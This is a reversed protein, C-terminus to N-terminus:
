KGLAELQWLLFSLEDTQEDITKSLPRGGSHGSTTDYLLLVPRDSGTEAQLLAAMKRAHLPAVRTDSDGTVFLVAPYKMGPKVSQYPSYALLYKFQDADDSSGYEPIWLPALLFEHYRIMDLLPYRCVVARFLDPRQTLAAGVLLGGNSTGTIALRSPKTYNNQILWEAATIFDDFVNQKKGLMGARHWAEGFEGGGRLNPLAFLGGREVWYAATSSFSPTNSVDFGGYGTMLVPNSGDRKLGKSHVLFMPVKTGDKSAYWVQEVEFRSSDFPIKQSAWISQSGSSSDYRFVTFPIHFSTFGYFVEDSSWRGSIGAVSGASPFEVDRLFKGEANFVKLRSSANHLYNVFIKGGAVEVDEIASDTETIVETWNERAPRRLDVSLVRGNPAKWNTQLFLRNGGITGLFRSAMDKAVPVLPGHRALDEVYIETKDGAAGYFVHILLYRGDESLTAGFAIEPGYGKGFLERDSVPDSGMRHYFLRPGETMQRSYYLGTKDPTLSVGYYRAEPLTDALDKGDDVNKLHLSVEDRGGRQIGYAVMKGDTSITELSVTTTHDASMPHPDLLVRDTGKLGDRVYIVFLDQDARRRSFFYRGGREQPAGFTDVKELDNLRKRIPDRSPLPDLQSRTYRTEDDIWARTEPSTQDELWRFSDKITVGHIVDAVNDKRTKPPANRAVQAMSNSWSAALIGFSTMCVLPVLRGGLRIRCPKGM